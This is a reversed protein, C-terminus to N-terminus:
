RIPAASARKASKSPACAPSKGAGNPGILATVKGKEVHISVDNVAKLGEFSLHLHEVKLM